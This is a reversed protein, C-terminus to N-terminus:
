RFWAQLAGSPVTRRALIERRRRLHRRLNRALWPFAGLSSREITLCAGAVVIDRTIWRPGFRLLWGRDAHHIRLLFRNKVSHRNVAASLSRRREPTVSRRHYAVAAPIYRARYGFGRLRWALDADERYAFFDEDFVEGDVESRKLASRRFVALAGTIGFVDEDRDYQGRDPDGSGRDFHRGDRTMVIGTSDIVETPQLADGVARLLKGGVVALEPPGADLAGVLVGLASPELRLDPNVLAVHPQTSAAIGQNAAPAFGRNGPNAILRVPVDPCSAGRAAVIDRTADVSANDVVILEAPLPRSGLVSRLCADLVDGSNWTVVVVSVPLEAM